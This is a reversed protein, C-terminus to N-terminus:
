KKLNGIVSDGSDLNNFRYRYATDGSSEVKIRDGTTWTATVQLQYMPSIEWRSGDKLTIETGDPGISALLVAGQYHSAPEPPRVGQPSAARKLKAGAQQNCSENYLIYPRTIDYKAKRILLRDGRRWWRAVSSDIVNISWVSGDNLEILEGNQNRFINQNAERKEQIAQKEPIPRPLLYKPWQLVWEKISLSEHYTQSQSLVHQTWQTIWHELAKRQQPPMRNLGTSEQEQPTMIDNLSLDEASLSPSYCSFVLTLIPILM